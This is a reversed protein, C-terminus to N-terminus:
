TSWAPQGANWSHRLTLSETEGARANARRVEDFAAGVDQRIIKQVGANNGTLSAGM